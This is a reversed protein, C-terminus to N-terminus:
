SDSTTGDKYTTRMMQWIFQGDAYEPAQLSWGDEPAETRSAGAAYLIDTSSVGKEALAKAESAEDAILKIGANSTLVLKEGFDSSVHNTTITGAKINSGEITAAAIENGTITGSLIENATITQSAIEAATISHAVIKDATITHETLVYGDITDVQTSVLEGMNNIAYVLSQDSGRIILREVSLQGATIKNATLEVIKADTISGDAIQATGVAGQEILAATIAGMAIKATDIAADQIQASTIASQAIKATTVALDEIQASGVALDAIKAQTIQADAIKATTIAADDIQATGVAANGIKASTIAADAIKATTVAADAIKASDIATDEIHATRISADKIKASTIAADAIQASQVAAEGIHATQIAGFSIKAATIAADDITATTIAAEAIKATTVSADMIKATTIAADDIKATDVAFDALKATTISGDAVTATPNALQAAMNATVSTSDKVRSSIEVSISGPHLADDVTVSTIQGAVFLGKEGDWVQALDGPMALDWRQGTLAYLELADVTWTRDPKSLSRLQRRAELRLTNADTIETMTLMATREGYQALASENVVSTGNAENGEAGYMYLRTVVTSADVTETIGNLNRGVIFGSREAASLPKLSVTWPLASTDYEWTYQYSTSLFASPLSMLAALVTTGAAIDVAATEEPFYSADPVSGIQWKIEGSQYALVTAFSAPTAPLTIDEPIISDNMVALVHEVTYRCFNGTGLHETEYGVIRFFGADRIVTPFRVLRFLTCDENAADDAPLSFSGTWLEEATLTYSADAANDLVRILTGDTEHLTM